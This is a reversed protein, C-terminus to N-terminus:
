RRLRFVRFIFFESNGITHRFLGTRYYFKTYLSILMSQFFISSCKYRVLRYSGIEFVLEYFFFSFNVDFLGCLALVGRWQRNFCVSFSRGCYLFRGCLVCFRACKGEKRWWRWVTAERFICIQISGPAVTIHLFVLRAREHTRASESKKIKRKNERIHRIYESRKAREDRKTNLNDHLMRRVYGAACMHAWIAYSFFHRVYIFLHTFPSFHTSVVVIPSFDTYHTTEINVSRRFLQSSFTESRTWQFTTTDHYSWSSNKLSTKENSPIISFNFISIKYQRITNLQYSVLKCYFKM